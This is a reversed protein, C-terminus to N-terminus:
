RTTRLCTPVMKTISDPDTVKESFCQLLHKLNWGSTKLSEKLIEVYHQIRQNADKKYYVYDM